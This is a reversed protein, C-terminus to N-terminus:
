DSILECDTFSCGRDAFRGRFTIEQGEEILKVQEICEARFVAKFRVLYDENEVECALGGSGMFGLPVRATVTCYEGPIIESGDSHEQMATLYSKDVLEGQFLSHPTLRTRCKTCFGCVSNNSGDTSFFYRTVEKHECPEPTAVIVFAVLMIFLIMLALIFNGVGLGGSKLWLVILLVFLLGLPVFILWFELPHEMLLFLPAGLVFLAGIVGASIHTGSRRM